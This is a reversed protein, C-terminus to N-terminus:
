SSFYTQTFNTCIKKSVAFSATKKQAYPPHLCFIFLVSSCSLFLFLSIGMSRLSQLVACPCHARRLWHLFPLPKHQRKYVDLHTYSVAMICLLSDLKTGKCDKFSLFIVPWTNMEKIFRTKSIELETFLAKSDKTIDFFERLMTMNLTKGFRRPRTILTVETTNQLWDAIMLTKDVYYCSKERIKLFDSVGIPLTKKM